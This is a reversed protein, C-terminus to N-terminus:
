EKLSRLPLGLANERSQMKQYLLTLNPSVGYHSVCFGAIPQTQFEYSQVVLIPRFQRCQQRPEPRRM